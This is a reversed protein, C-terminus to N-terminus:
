SVIEIGLSGTVESTVDSFAVVFMRSYFNNNSTLPIVTSGSLTRGYIKDAKLEELIYDTRVGNELVVIALRLTTAFGTFSYQVQYSIRYFHKGNNSLPTIAKPNLESGNSITAITFDSGSLNLATEPSNPDVTKAPMSIIGGFRSKIWQITPVGSENTPSNTYTPLPQYIFM